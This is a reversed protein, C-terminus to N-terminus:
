ETKKSEIILHPYKDLEYDLVLGGALSQTIEPGYLVDCLYMAAEFSRAGGASTIVNQDHVFWVNKRIDLEPFRDKMQDIDSPFTTSVKDDLIGAQALVFAGDCHSTIYMANESVQKVFNIMTVNDLDKDLHHEASPVVLIDINPANDFTYDPLIRIGEFTTVADMTQAVLFVNMPQIGERYKTHQFIDFPATLETNFTGDMILFGVNYVNEKSQPTQIKDKIVQMERKNSNNCSILSIVLFVTLILNANNTLNYVISKMNVTPIISRISKQPVLSFSM